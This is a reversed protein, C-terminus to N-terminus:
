LEALLDKVKNRVSLKNAKIQLGPNLYNQCESNYTSAYGRYTDSQKAIKANKANNKCLKKKLKERIVM